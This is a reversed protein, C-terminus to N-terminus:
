TNRIIKVIFMREMYLVLLKIQIVLVLQTIKAAPIVGWGQRMSLCDSGLVKGKGSELATSSQLRGKGSPRATVAESGKYRYIELKQGSYYPSCLIGFKNNRNM